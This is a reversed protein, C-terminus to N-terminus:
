TSNKLSPKKLGNQCTRFVKQRKISLISTLSVVDSFQFFNHSM